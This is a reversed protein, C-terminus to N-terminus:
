LPKSKIRLLVPIWRLSKFCVTLKDSSKFCAIRETLGKTEDIIRVWYWNRLSSKKKQIRDDLLRYGKECCTISEWILWKCSEFLETITCLKTNKDQARFVIDLEYYICLLYQNFLHIFVHTHRVTSAIHKKEIKKNSIKKM